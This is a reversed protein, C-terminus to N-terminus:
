ARRMAATVLGAGILCSGGVRNIARLVSPSRLRARVGGALLIFAANTIGGMLVFTPALIALQPLIPAEATMFQPLFAIFFALGKPNLATVIFGQMARRRSAGSAAVAQPDVPARWLKIGLWVLYAAGVWKFVTFVTASAALLAGLGVACVSIALLDGLLVGGLTILAARRGEGLAYGVVLMVTPGPIILMVFSAAAFALWTEFPM